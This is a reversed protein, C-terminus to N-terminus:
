DQGAPLVVPLPPEERSALREWPNERTYWPLEPGVEVLGEARMKEIFGYVEDFDIDLREAIDFVSTRNDLAHLIANINRSLEPQVRWDVWLGHRSLHPEGVYTRVPVYDREIIAIIRELVSITDEVNQWDVLDPTDDSTHYEPFHHFVNGGRTRSLSLVPLDVGPSNLFGDDNVVLEWCKGEILEPDARRAVLRAVRDLRTDEWRSYQLAMPYPLGVMEVFIGGTIAPLMEQHNACWAISGIREPVFMFRYTFRTDRGAMRRALEVLAISGIVGDNVQAPHDIHGMLVISNPLAGEIVHEGVRLSGPVYEADIYAHFREGELRELQDCSMCFGWDLEYFKFEYPIAHPRDERCSVHELLESREVVRDVPLSGSIVHMPHDATDIVRRGQEDEIWGERLVWKHPLEWDFCRSGTPFQHVTLPIQEGIIDLTRNLDDSVITRNLRWTQELLQKM